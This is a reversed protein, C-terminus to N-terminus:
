LTDSDHTTMLVQVTIGQGSGINDCVARVAAYPTLDFAPCIMEAQDSVNAGNDHAFAIAEEFTVTTGSVSKIRALEYKTVDSTHGLFLLDGAALNTASTVVCTTAGAIIAGNLTTKGISAGLAMQYTFLPTWLGGSKNQAEIRINPWGATFASGTARGLRIDFSAARKTAVSQAASFVIAANAVDQWALLSTGWTKSPVITTTM